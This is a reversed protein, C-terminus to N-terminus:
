KPFLAYQYQLVDWAADIEAATVGPVAKFNARDFLRARSHTLGITKMM